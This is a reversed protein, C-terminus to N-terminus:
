PGPACPRKQCDCGTVSLLQTHSLTGNKCRLTVSLPETGTSSCCVCEQQVARKEVSYVAKSDCKGECYHLEVKEESQCDEVNIFNLVGLTRRCEPETCMECCSDGIQSIKGGHQLCRQREFPPCTTIRTELVLDSDKNVSCSYHVCGDQLTSNAKLNMLRRDPRMISCASAVCRGCCSDQIPEMTYGEPCPSCRIKRCSLQPKKVLGEALVCDCHTCVDVMVKEGAAILTHNLVCVDLPECHCTPCCRDITNCSLETGLPCTPVDMLLCSTNSHTVFVEQNVRVCEGWVCGRTDAQWREGVERLRGGHLGEELCSTKVCEGCCEGAAQSYSSGLPCIENCVTERCQSIHLGTADDKLETCSCTKCHGAWQRGVQYVVGEVVCVRDPNCTIEVCGCDNTTEMTIYGPPCSHTSNHCDCVCEMLDCCETQRVSLRKHSPCTPPAQVPCAGKKCVCEFAPVCGGPNTLVVTQGNACKPPATPECNQVDCVCEYEPCCNSKKEKLIECRGCVPAKSNTCPVTTCNVHQQDLCVCMLCPNDAPTWSHLYPHTHGDQDVCSTCAERSVCEDGQVVEGEACFCGETPTDWCQTGNGMAVGDGLEMVSSTFPQGRGCQEVCGTKCAAYQMSNPCSMPCLDPSRWKVCVGQHRCVGSYASILDCVDKPHCAVERCLVLYPDPPVAAHCPKFADQLLAACRGAVGLECVDAPGSTCQGRVWSRLYRVPDSTVAGDSMFLRDDDCSGCIGATVNTTMAVDQTITFENSHPTFTVTVGVQEVWMHHLVAGFQSVEVGEVRFPVATLAGGVKVKMDRMLVVDVGGGRLEVAEMCIQNSVADCPATHLVLQLDGVRLLTYSCFGELKLAVGGFSVVHNSSSGMCTCPCAWSCGCREKVKVPRISSRCTPPEMRECNVMHSQLTVAGGPHCLVSHCGGPLLWTEGPKRESGEDDVCVGPPGARCLKDIFTHGLTAMAILDDTSSLRISNSPTHAGALVSLEAQDFNKGIGVPFVSVGATLADAAAEQVSDASRETVVMVVVKAVGVRGGSASSMSTQVALRLAAGAFRVIFLSFLALFRLFRLENIER